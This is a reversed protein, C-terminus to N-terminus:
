NFEPFTQEPPLPERQYKPCFQVKIDYKSYTSKTTQLSFIHDKCDHECRRKRKREDMQM